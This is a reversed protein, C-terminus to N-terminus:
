LNASPSGHSNFVSSQRKLTYGTKCSSPQSCLYNVAENVDTSDGPSAVDPVWLSGCVPSSTILLSATRQAIQLCSGM